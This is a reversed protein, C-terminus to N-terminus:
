GKKKRGQRQKMKPNEKVNVNANTADKRKAVDKAESSDIAGFLGIMEHGEGGLESGHSGRMEGSFEKELEQVQAELRKFLSIYIESFAEQQELTVKERMDLHLLPIFTAIKDEKKESPILRSFTLSEAGERAFHAKIKEYIERIKQTINIVQVPLVIAADREAEFISEFRKHRREEVDIARKLASMLEEITVKKLRPLPTRPLILPLEGSPIFYREGEALEEAEERGNLLEDLYQLQNFVRDAKMRLLISAALLVKGSVFFNAEELKRVKELFGRTLLIIDIDLPDLQESRVLDYIIAHWSIEDGTILSYLEEHGIRKESSGRARGGRKRWALSSLDPRETEPEEDHPLFDEKAM